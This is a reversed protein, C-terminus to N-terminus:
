ESQFDIDEIHINIKGIDMGVMETIARNVKNQVLKGTAHLDADHKMILFVDAYVTNNEVEILVGGSYNKKIISDLNRPGSALKGVGPVSLAALRVIQILVGPEITTKGASYKEDDM